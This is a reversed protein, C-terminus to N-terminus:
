NEEGSARESEQHSEGRGEKRGPQSCVGGWGGGRREGAPRARRAGERGCSAAAGQRAWRRPEPRAPRAEHNRLPSQPARLCAQAGRQQTGWRMAESGRTAWGPGLPPSAGGGARGAFPGAGGRAGRQPCASRGGCCSPKGASM